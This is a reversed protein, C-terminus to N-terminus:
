FWNLNYDGIRTMNGNGSNPSYLRLSVIRSRIALPRALIATLFSFVSINAGIAIALIFAAFFTFAARPGRQNKANRRPKTVSYAVVSVGL